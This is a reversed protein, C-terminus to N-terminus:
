RNPNRVWICFVLLKGLKFAFKWSTIYKYMSGVFRKAPKLFIPGRSANRYTIFFNAFNKLQYSNARWDKNFRLCRIEVLSWLGGSKEM